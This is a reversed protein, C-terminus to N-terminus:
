QQPKEYNEYKDLLLSTNKGIVFVYKAPGCSACIIKSTDDIYAVSTINIRDPNNSNSNGHKTFKQVIKLIFYLLFIVFALGLIAKLIIM